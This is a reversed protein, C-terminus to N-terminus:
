KGFKSATEPFIELKKASSLVPNERNPIKILKDTDPKKVLMSYMEPNEIKKILMKYVTSDRVTNHEKSLQDRLVEPTFKKFKLSDSPTKYDGETPNQQAFALAPLVLFIAAFSKM